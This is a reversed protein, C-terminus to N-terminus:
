IETGEFLEKILNEARYRDLESVMIRHGGTINDLAGGLRNFGYLNNFSNIIKDCDIGHQDLWSYVREIELDNTTEFICVLKDM